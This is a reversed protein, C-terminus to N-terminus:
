PGAEAKSRMVLCPDLCLGDKVALNTCVACKRRRKRAHADARANELRVRKVHERINM